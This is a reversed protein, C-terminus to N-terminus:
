KSVRAALTGSGLDVAGATGNRFVETVVGPASVYATLVLGQLDNSFTASAFDGLAANPVTVTTTTQAGAALSPPDYTATGSYPKSFWGVFAGGTNVRSVNDFDARWSAPNSITFPKDVACITGGRILISGSADAAASTSIMAATHASTGNLIQTNDLTLHASQALQFLVGDSPTYDHITAGSVTFEASVNSGGLGARLFQQGAEYRGGSVALSGTTGSTYFEVANGSAECGHFYHSTGGALTTGGYTQFVGFGFGHAAATSGNAGRTCGTFTTATAGTYDVYESEILLRGSPPFGMTTDVPITTVASTIGGAGVTAFGGYCRLGNTCGSIFGGYFAYALGNQSLNQFAIDGATAGGGVVTYNKWNIGSADRNGGSVNCRWGINRGGISLDAFCDDFTIGSLSPRTSDCDLDWLTVGGGAASNGAKVGRVWSNKWGKCRFLTGGAAGTYRIAGYTGGGEINLRFQSGSAPQLVITSGILYQVAPDPILLTGEALIAANAAAQFAAADDTVGDGTAGFAPDTVCFIGLKPLNPSNPNVGLRYPIRWNGFSQVGSGEISNCSSDPALLSVERAADTNGTMTGGTVQVRLTWKEFSCFRSAADIHIAKTLRNKAPPASPGAFHGTFHCNECAELKIGNSAAFGASATFTVTGSVTTGADNWAPETGGSTGPTTVTYVRNTLPLPTGTGSFLTTPLVVAGAAYVTNPAWAPTGSAAGVPITLNNGFVARCNNFLFQWDGGGGESALNDLTLQFSNRFEYGIAGARGPMPGNQFVDAFRSNYARGKFTKVWGGRLVMPQVNRVTSLGIGISDEGIPADVGGYQYPTQILLTDYVTQVYPAPDVGVILGRWPDAIIDEMVAVRNGVGLDILVDHYKNSAEIYLRRMDCQFWENEIDVLTASALGGAKNFTHKIARVGVVDPLVFGVDTISNYFVRESTAGWEIMGRNPPFNSAGVLMSAQPGAGRIRVIPSLDTGQRPLVIPASIKFRGPPFVVEGGLYTV